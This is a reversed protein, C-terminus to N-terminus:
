TSWLTTSLTKSDFPDIQYAWGIRAALDAFLLWKTKRLIPTRLPFAHGCRRLYPTSSLMKRHRYPVRPESNSAALQYSEFLHKDLGGRPWTIGCNDIGRSILPREERAEYRNENYAGLVLSQKCTWM